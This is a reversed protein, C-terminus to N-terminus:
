LILFVSQDVLPPQTHMHAETSVHRRTQNARQTGGNPKYMVIYIFTNFNMKTDLNCDPWSIIPYVTM